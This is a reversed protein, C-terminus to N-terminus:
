PVALCSDESDLLVGHQGILPKCHRPLGGRRFFMLLASDYLEVLMFDYQKCSNLQLM